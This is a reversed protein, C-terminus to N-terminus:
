KVLLRQSSRVGNTQLQVVYVGPVLQKNIPIIYERCNGGCVIKDSLLVDGTMNIIQIKTELPKSIGEYGSITLQADGSVAPNPYIGIYSYSEAKTPTMIGQRAAMAEAAEFPMLHTGAIPRELTGDPLQWGVSVHDAGTAEKMVAEVYYRRNALLVVPPSQQTAYKTWHRRDTWGTHYAIKTKTGPNDDSGLWLETHDDGAIWFTYAGTIPPCVYGRIRSGYNDAMGSASEFITLDQFFDAEREFPISSVRRGTVNTWFEQQIVGTGACPAPIRPAEFPIVRIGPIPREFSGDPLQWGVALHDRGYGEKMLAEIYYKRGTVLSIPASRQAPYKNWERSNTWGQVEAIKKKKVPNEDTSIWLEGLDDSSMWFAYSGTQPAVLYGRLRTGYNDGVNEPIEFLILDSVSSPPSDFPITSVDRGPIGTWVESSIRGPQAVTLAEPDYIWLMKPGDAGWFDNRTAFLVRGNFNVIDTTGATSIGFMAQMSESNFGDTQFLHYYDDPNDPIGEEGQDAHDAYFILDNVITVDRPGSNSGTSNFCTFEETGATTGDSRFFCGVYTQHNGYFLMHDNVVEFFTIGGEHTYEEFIYETGAPTGDTRFLQSLIGNLWVFFYVDGHYVVFEWSEDPLLKVLSTTSPTGGTKWLGVIEDYSNAPHVVFYVVDEHGIRYFVDGPSDPGGVIDQLLITGAETGDSVWPEEGEAATRGTFYFMDKYAFAGGPVIYLGTGPPLVFGDAAGQNIDKIMVTGTATGDTKWLEIGHRGDNGAFFINNGVATARDVYGSGTGPYVDRVLQTGSLTGDTKFLELGYANDSAQFFLHTDTQTLIELNYDTSTKLRITGSPTGDSRWLEKSKGYPTGVDHTFFLLGKFEIMKGPEPLGNKIFATGEATGDTRFLSDNTTFYVLGGAKFFNKSAKPVETIITPQAQVIIGNSFLIFIALQFSRLSTKM